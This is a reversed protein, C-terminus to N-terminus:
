RVVEYLMGDAGLVYQGFAPGDQEGMNKGSNKAPQTSDCADLGQVQYLSGHEGLLYQELGKGVGEESLSQVQYLTGDEGLFMAEEGSASPNVIMLEDLGLQQNERM